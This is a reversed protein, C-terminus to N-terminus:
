LKLTHFTSWPYSSVTVMEPGPFFAPGRDLDRDAVGGCAHGPVTQRGVADLDRQTPCIGHAAVAAFFNRRRRSSGTGSLLTVQEATSLGCQFHANSQLLFSFCFHM